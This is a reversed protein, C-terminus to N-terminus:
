RLSSNDMDFLGVDAARRLLEVLNSAGMKHMVHSRHVEVTRPSRHLAAAIERNNKGELILHLVRIEANTLDHNVVSNREFNEKLLTQVTKLFAERDLPKEIFDAAGGKLARVAMPVDGFGTVVLVPLWPRQKRVEMLLQIGDKGPMKVDTILLDCPVSELYALCADAGEFCRVSVGVRELTKRVVMRIKPEDDVFLVHGSAANEM